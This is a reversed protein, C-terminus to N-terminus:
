LNEQEPIQSTLSSKLLLRYSQILRPGLFFDILNSLFEERHKLFYRIVSKLSLVISLTLLMRPRQQCM